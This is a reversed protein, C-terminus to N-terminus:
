RVAFLVGDNETFITGDPALSLPTYAAGIAVKLFLKQGAQSIDFVGSFGQPIRYM